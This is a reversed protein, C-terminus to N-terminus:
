REGGDQGETDDSKDQEEWRGCKNCHVCIEGYSEGMNKCDETTSYTIHLMRNM